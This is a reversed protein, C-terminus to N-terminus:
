GEDQCNQLEGPVGTRVLPWLLWLGLWLSPSRLWSDTDVEWHPFSGCEEIQKGPMLVTEVAARGALYVVTGVAHAALTGLSHAMHRAVATATHEDVAARGMSCLM